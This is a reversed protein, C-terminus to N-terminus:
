LGYYFYRRLKTEDAFEWKWIIDCGFTSPNLVQFCKKSPVCNLGYWASQKGKTIDLSM